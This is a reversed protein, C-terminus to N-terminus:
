ILVTMKVSVGTIDVVVQGNNNAANVVGTIILEPTVTNVIPTIDWDQKIVPSDPLGIIVEKIKRPM